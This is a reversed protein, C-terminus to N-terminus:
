SSPAMGMRREGAAILKEVRAVIHKGYTYKKLANLHVKIRSLILERNQDDCTELVKQVVYNAFQDKMMAQLPENEDNPGLMEKILLLREEPKGYTLCKEIVNSAFKQQSMKVIQGSLKSIIASREAPKGHQLVHQVVYNGYQDEALNCVSQLIEDMMISETQADNCHELVRQIVRCGYPHTSLAVVQGYFSSIIFQIREQPVCEICKQIVHNGNQDRVCKMVSGDLESVMRTQLEMGVVELAKQIVRCGYMQLSLPLVHGIVQSALQNRQSETGHEFFKQIVYNGFVDTMLARAHPLIEPFIKNKEEVSATELKQQIFRSGYQDASFEVVHDVIDSLEFSRTKNNKFEELLTSVFSEEMIGSEYNWSGKPVGIASRLMSPLRSLRDNPRLSGPGLSSLLNTSLPSSPYTMGLGLGSSGYFGNSLGSDKSLAGGYQLKQQALLAELYAKQYPTLDMLSSGLFSGGLSPDNMNGSYPSTSGSAGQLYQAYLPDIVSVPYGSGEQSGIGAAAGADLHNNLMSPLGHNLLYANPNNEPFNANLSDQQYRGSSGSFSSKRVPAVKKSLNSSSLCKQLGIQENTARTSIDDKLIGSNRSFENNALGPISSTNYPDSGHQFKSLVVNERGGIKSSLNLGALAAAVDVYDSVQTPVGGFGNSIKKSDVDFVRSGVAPLCPSSSRGIMVSETNRSIALSPDVASAFSQAAKSGLSQVRALGPSTRGSRIGELSGIASNDFANQSPPRSINGIVSTSSHNLDEQLVDAFSKRRSGLGIEPLGILGDRGKELWEGGHEMSGKEGQVSLSPQMSFLSRSSGDSEVSLKRGRRDGIGGLGSGGFGFRQAVRWDEKSLLPPPLRPNLNENSYYYSMYALQSRMDEELLEDTANQGDFGVVESRGFLSGIAKRSGEVTPPASGSRCVNLDRERDFSARSQHLHPHKQQERLLAEIDKEFGEEFSVSAMKVGGETVVSRVRMAFGDVRIKDALNSDRFWSEWSGNEM